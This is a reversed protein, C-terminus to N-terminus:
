KYMFQYHINRCKRVFSSSGFRSSLERKAHTAVKTNLACHDYLNSVRDSDDDVVSSPSGPHTEDAFNVTYQRSVESVMDHGGVM